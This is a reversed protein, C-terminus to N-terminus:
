KLFAMLRLLLMRPFHHYNNLIGFHTIVGGCSYVKFEEHFVDSCSVLNVHFNVETEKVHVSWKLLLFLEDKVKRYIEKWRFGFLSVNTRKTHISQEKQEWKEPPFYSPFSIFIFFIELVAFLINPHRQLRFYFSVKSHFEIVGKKTERFLNLLLLQWITKNSSTVTYHM